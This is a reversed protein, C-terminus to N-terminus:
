EGEVIRFLADLNPTLIIETRRNKARNEANDNPVLPSYESRGAASINAPNVEQNELLLRVISTARKTSLDWNDKVDGKGRLPVNDTHGEVMLQIEPNHAMVNAIEYIAERGQPNVTWSGSSFLLKEDMSVYVKGNKTQVTLGKDQFGLLAQSIKEKLERMQNNQADLIGQLRALTEAQEKLLREKDALEAERDALESEKLSLEQALADKGSVTSKYQKNMKAYDSQLEALDAATLLYNRRLTDLQTYAKDLEGQLRKGAATCENLNANCDQNSKELERNTAECQTQKDLLENYKKSSVCGYNAAFLCVTALLLGTRILKNM